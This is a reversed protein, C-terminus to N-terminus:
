GKTRWTALSKQAMVLHHLQRSLPVCDPYSSSLLTAIRELNLALDRHDGAKLYRGSFNNDSGPYYLNSFQESTLEDISFERQVWDDLTCRIEELRQYIGPRHWTLRRSRNIMQALEQHQTITLKGRPRRENGYMPISTPTERKFGTPPAKALKGSAQRLPSAFIPSYPCSPEKWTHASALPFAYNILKNATNEVARQDRGLLYMYRIAMPQYISFEVRRLCYGNETAWQERKQEIEAGLDYPEDVVLPEGGPTYWLSMHDSRPLMGLDSRLRQLAVTPRVNSSKSLGTAHMFQLERAAACIAEITKSQSGAMLRIVLHDPADGRFLRLHRFKSFDCARTLQNWHPLQPLFLTERGASIEMWYATVYVGQSQIQTDLGRANLAHIAHRYNDFGASKAARSLAENHKIDEAIRLRQAFRKIGVISQPHNFQLEM